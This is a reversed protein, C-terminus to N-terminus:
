RVVRPMLFPTALLLSEWLRVWWPELRRASWVLASMEQTQLMHRTQARQWRKEKHNQICCAFAQRKCMHPVHHGKSASQRSSVCFTQLSNSHVLSRDTFPALNAPWASSTSGNESALLEQHRSTLQGCCNPNVFAKLRDKSRTAFWLHMECCHSPAAVVRAVVVTHRASPTETVDRADIRTRVVVCPGISTLGQALEYVNNRTAPPTKTTAPALNDTSIQRGPRATTAVPRRLHYGGAHQLCM